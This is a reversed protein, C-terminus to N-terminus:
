IFSELLTSTSPTVPCTPFRTRNLDRDIGIAVQNGSCINIPHIPQVPFCRRLLICSGRLQLLFFAVLSIGRRRFQNIVRLISTPGGPNSGPVLLNHTQQELRQAVPGYAWNLMSPFDAEGYAWWIKPFLVLVTRFTGSETQIRSFAPGGPSPGCDCNGIAICGKQHLFNRLFCETKAYFRSFLPTSNKKGGLDITRFTTLPLIKSVHSNARNWKARPEM